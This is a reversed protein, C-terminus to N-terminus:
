KCSRSWRADFSFAQILGERTVQEIRTSSQSAAPAVSRTSQLAPIGVDALRSVEEQSLARAVVVLDDIAGFCGDGFDSRVELTRRYGEGWSTRYQKAFTVANQKDIYLSVIGSGDYVLALHHWQGDVISRSGALENQGGPNGVFPRLPTPRGPQTGFIAVYVADNVELTGYIFPLQLDATPSDLKLWCAVTRPLGGMPLGDRPMAIRQGNLRLAQGHIGPVLQANDVLLPQADRALNPLRPATDGARDLADFSLALVLHQPLRRTDPPPDPKLPQQPVAARFLKSDPQGTARLEPDVPDQPLAAKTTILAEAPILQPTDPRRDARGQEHMLDAPTAALNASRGPRATGHPAHNSEQLPDSLASHFPTVENSRRVKCVM